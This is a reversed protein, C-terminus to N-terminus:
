FIRNSEKFDLKSIQNKSLGCLYGNQYNNKKISYFDDKKITNHYSYIIPKNLKNILAHYSPWPKFTHVVDCDYSAYFSKLSFDIRRFAREFYNTSQNKYYILKNVNYQTGEGAM